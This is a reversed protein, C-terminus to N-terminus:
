RAKKKKLLVEESADGVAAQEPLSLIPSGDVRIYLLTQEASKIIDLYEQTLDEKKKTNPPESRIEVNYGKDIRNAWRCLNIKLSNTIENRRGVDEIKCYKNIIEVNIEEIEKEMKENAHEEVGKLEEKSLGQNELEFRLRRIELLSKYVRVIREIASALCAAAVPAMQVHFMFDTSSITRVAFGHREGTALENFDALMLNIIRLEGGLSGLENNVAGRPITVGVECAGPALKDAEIHLGAFGSVVQEVFNKLQIVSQNIKQIEQLAISPTIQNQEFVKGIRESLNSGLFDFAGIEKLIQNWAPSFENSPASQLFSRLRALSQSTIQQNAPNSPQSLQGQLGNVLQQLVPVFDASALEKQVPLLVAHLREANM